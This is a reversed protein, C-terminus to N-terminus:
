FFFSIVFYWLGRDHAPTMGLIFFEVHENGKREWLVCAHLVVPTDNKGPLSNCTKWELALPTMKSSFFIWANNRLETPGM